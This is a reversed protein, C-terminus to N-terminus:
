QTSIRSPVSTLGRSKQVMYFSRKFKLHEELEPLMVVQSIHSFFQIRSISDKRCAMELENSKYLGERTRKLVLLELRSTFTREREYEQARRGNVESSALRSAM